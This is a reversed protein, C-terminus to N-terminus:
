NTCAWTNACEIMYQYKGDTLLGSKREFLDTGATVEFEEAAKEYSYGDDGIREMLQITSVPQAAGSDTEGPELLNIDMNVDVSVDPNLNSRDVVSAYNWGQPSRGVCYHASTIVDASNVPGLVPITADKKMLSVTCQLSENFRYGDPECESLFKHIRDDLACSKNQVPDQINICMLNKTAFTKKGTSCAKGDADTGAFRYGYSVSTPAPSPDGSSAGGASAPAVLAQPDPSNCAVVSFIVLPLLGLVKLRM